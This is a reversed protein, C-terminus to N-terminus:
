LVDQGGNEPRIHSEDYMLYDDVLKDNEFLSKRRQVIEENYVKKGQQILFNCRLSYEVERSKEGKQEKIIKDYLTADIIRANRNKLQQIKREFSAQEEDRFFVKGADGKSTYNQAQRELNDKFQKHWEEM